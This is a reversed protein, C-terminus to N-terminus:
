FLRSRLVNKGCHIGKKDVKTELYTRQMNRVAKSHTTTIM